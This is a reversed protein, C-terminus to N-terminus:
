WGSKQYRRSNNSLYDKLKKDWPIWAAIYKKITEEQNPSEMIEDYIPPSSLDELFYLLLFCYISDKIKM